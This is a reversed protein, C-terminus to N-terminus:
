PVFAVSMPKAVELRHGTPTLRGTTGDVRFSVIRHSDQNAALYIVGTPDMGTARPHDGQTPEHQVFKLRGSSPDVRFVVTSNHGRNAAYVFQGNPHVVVESTTNPGRFDEPLTPLVEIEQLTRHSPDYSLVALTNDLENISYLWKGNPHFTVHRPGAGTKATWFSARVLQSASKAHLVEVHDNGLDAVCLVTGSPDFAVGHPHPRDQRDTLSRGEHAYEAVMDQISGDANLPMVCSGRGHYHCVGLTTGAANVGIHTAGVSDGTFARSFEALKGTAREIKYARVGGFVGDKGPKTENTIAYLIPLKPHVVLFESHVGEAAIQMGGFAGSKLNLTCSYIVKPNDPSAIFLWPDARTADVFTAFLPLVVLLSAALAKM